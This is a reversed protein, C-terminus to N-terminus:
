FICDFTIKNSKPHYDNFIKFPQVGALARDMILDIKDITPNSQILRITNLLSNTKFRIMNTPKGYNIMRMGISIYHYAKDYDNNKICLLIDNALEDFRHVLDMIFKSSYLTILAEIYRVISGDGNDTYVVTKDPIDVLDIKFNFTESIDKLLLYIVV